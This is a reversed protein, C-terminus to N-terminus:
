DNAGVQRWTKKEEKVRTDDSKSFAVDLKKRHIFLSETMALRQSTLDEFSRRRPGKFPKKLQCLM